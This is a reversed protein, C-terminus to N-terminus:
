SMAGTGAGWDAIIREAAPLAAALDAPVLSVRTRRELLDALSLAGEARLGHVLEVGLVPVGPALAEALSRDVDAYAWVREAEAGYRRVLRAPVGSPPPSAGRRPRAGILPLNATRCPRDTILDVADEAMRRYTTLKGGTISVTRADVRRVLHRRSVDATHAPGVGQAAGVEGQVLPRVGTFAGVVDASEIPRALVRSIRERIWELEAQTPEPEDAIPLTDPEDTIGIFALGDPQPLAFVYRSHDDPVALTLAGTPYGLVEARVVLHTGRSPRVSIQPDLDGVWAGTAIITTRPHVTFQEDSVTDRLVVQGDSASICDVRTLIRAGFAAATRAVCTVLRADDELQGEWLLTGGDITDADVCPVLDVVERTSLRRARPLVASGRGATRKLAEGAAAGVRTLLASEGRPRPIVQALPRILHPAIVRMLRDREVASEWAVDVEGRALYRLGGHALKSSWRSTGFALDHREVLAVRLGRSAADLAIGAGTIGGGVVLVDLECGARLGAVERARRDASLDASRDTARTTFDM